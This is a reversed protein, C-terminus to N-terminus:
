FKIKFMKQLFKITENKSTFRTNQVNLQAAYSTIVIASKRKRERTHKAYRILSSAYKITCKQFDFLLHM